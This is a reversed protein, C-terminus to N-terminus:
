AVNACVLRVCMFIACVLRICMFFPHEYFFETTAYTTRERKCKNSINKCKRTKVMVVYFFVVVPGINFVHFAIFSFLIFLNDTQLFFVFMKPSLQESLDTVDRLTHDPKAVNLIARKRVTQM